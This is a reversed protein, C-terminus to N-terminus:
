HVRTSSWVNDFACSTRFALPRTLRLDLRCIRRPSRVEDIYTFDMQVLRGAGSSHPPQGRSTVHLAFALCGRTSKRVFYLHRRLDRRFFTRPPEPTFIHM